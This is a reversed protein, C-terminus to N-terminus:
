RWIGVRIGRMQESFCGDPAAEAILGRLRTDFDALNSGFLHPAASSQSYISARVRGASRIVVRPPLELLQPGDFGAAKTIADEGGPTEGTSLVSRGARRTDVLFERILAAIARRPPPDTPCSFRHTWVKTREM